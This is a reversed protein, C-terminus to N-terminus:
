GLCDGIFPKGMFHVQRRVGPLLNVKLQIVLWRIPSIFPPIPMLDFYASNRKNREFVALNGLLFFNNKNRTLRTVAAHFVLM